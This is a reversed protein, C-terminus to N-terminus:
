ARREPPFVFSLSFCYLLSNLSCRALLYFSSPFLAGFHMFYPACVFAKSHLPCSARGFPVFVFLLLLLSFTCYYLFGIFFSLAEFSRVFSALLLKGVAIFVTLCRLGPKPNGWPRRPSPIDTARRTEVRGPIFYRVPVTQNFCRWESVSAYQDGIGANQRNLHVLSLEIM